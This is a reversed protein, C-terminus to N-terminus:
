KRNAAMVTIPKMTFFIFTCFITIKESTMQLANKRSELKKTHFPPPPYPLGCVKAPKICAYSSPNGNKLFLM